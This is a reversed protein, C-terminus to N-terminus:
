HLLSTGHNWLHLHYQLWISMKGTKLKTKPYLIKTHYILLFIEFIHNPPTVYVPENELKDIENQEDTTFDTVFSKARKEPDEGESDSSFKGEKIQASDELEDFFSDFSDTM